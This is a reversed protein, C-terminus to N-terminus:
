PITADKTDGASANFDTVTDTGPGGSFTDGSGRGTLTDNGGGGNLVDAAADGCLLDNGTNGNITNRGGLGLVADPGATGTITETNYTGVIVTLVLHGTTKGDSVTFGLATRGAKNAAATFTVTRDNGTGGLVVNANAVLAPNSNSTLTLTLADGDKDSLTVNVLASRTNTASCQGNKVAATPAVNTTDVEVGSAMSLSLGSKSVDCRRDGPNAAGPDPNTANPQYDWPGTTATAGPSQGFAAWRFHALGGPVVDNALTLAFTERGNAVAANATTPGQLTKGSLDQCSGTSLTRDLSRLTMDVSVGDASRAAMVEADAIGDLDNDVLVHVGLTARIGPGYTSADVAITVTTTTVGVNWKVLRLDTKGEPGVPTDSPDTGSYTLAYAPVATSTIFVIVAAAALGRWHVWTRRTTPAM